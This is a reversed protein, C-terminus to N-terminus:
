ITMIPIASYARKKARQAKRKAKSKFQKQGEAM